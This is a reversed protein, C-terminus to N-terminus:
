TLWHPIHLTTLLPILTFPKPASEADLIHM